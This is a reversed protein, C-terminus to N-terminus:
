SSPQSPSFWDAPPSAEVVHLVQLKVTSMVRNLSEEFAVKKELYNNQIELLVDQEESTSCANFLSESLEAFEDIFKKMAILKKHAVEYQNQKATQNKKLVDVNVAPHKSLTDIAVTLNHFAHGAELMEVLVMDIFSLDDVATQVQSIAKRLKKGDYQGEKCLSNCDTYTALTKEAASQTIALAKKTDSAKKRTAEVKAKESVLAAPQEEVPKKAIREAQTINLLGQEVEQQVEPIASKVVKRARTVTGESVNLLKAAEEKTLAGSELTTLKGAAIGRQETTLHRRKLNKGIVFATPSCKHGLESFQIYKPKIGVELCCNYRSRGDLVQEDLLVIPDILGNKLIDAKLDAYDVESPEPLLLCLPHFSYTKM